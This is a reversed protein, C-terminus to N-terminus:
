QHGDATPTGQAPQADMAGSAQDASDGPEAAPEGPEAAAEKLAATLVEVLHAMGEASGAVLEHTTAQTHLLARTAQLNLYSLHAVCFERLHAPLAAWARMKMVFDATDTFTLHRAYLAEATEFPNM